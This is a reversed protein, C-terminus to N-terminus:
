TLERSLVNTLLCVESKLGYQPWHPREVGLGDNPTLSTAFSIWYDMIRDSLLRSEQSFAATHGYVYPKEQVHVVAFFSMLRQVYGLVDPTRVEWILPFM